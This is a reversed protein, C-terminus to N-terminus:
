PEALLIAAPVQEATAERYTASIKTADEDSEVLVNRIDWANLVPEAYERASDGSKGAARWKEYSRYGIICFLPIRLDYVVNRFADGSEFLGTCQVIVVPKQGGISLGAAIAWAEGERCVPVLRIEACEDFLPQLLGTASDPVWVVHTFGCEQIQQFLREPSIM